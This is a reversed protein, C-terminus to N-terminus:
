KEDKIEEFDADVVNDDDAAQPGTHNASGPAEGAAQAKQAINGSLEALKQASAEIAAVDDGKIAEEAAAIASELEQKEADSLKEGLETLSSRAAHVLADAQNRANVLEQFKRDEDAHAEADKVMQEIEEDSLGSSAKIVISQAKGTAKDKASVNLIGNADIDFTVEIQPMGRPAPPIDSLDFRGLSKNGSAREREGQLVHVTVATQNDDATSFVQNAKTPITTNKEILKTMVGGLTEIGLSLPTVDLLLVDKVDGGLVGAQIAAGVAVAEDPNVDKRPEKGFFERVVEQVKPMRTQGGVLIVDDIESAAFGADALATRCPDITRKVLDEVLSELKARTIKV